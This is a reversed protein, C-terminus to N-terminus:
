RTKGQWHSQDFGAYFAFSYPSEHTGIALLDGDRLPAAMVGAHEGIRVGNVTVGCKSGRDVVQYGDATREIRCHERSIQLLTGQDMLYIDNSGKEVGSGPRELRNPVGKILMVRSERGINFPFDYIPVLGKRQMTAPLSHLSETTLAKLVALPFLSQLISDRTEMVTEM